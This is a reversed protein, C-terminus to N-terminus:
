EKIALIRSAIIITNSINNSNRFKIVILIVM